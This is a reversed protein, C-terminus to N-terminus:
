MSAAPLCDAVEPARLKEICWGIGPLLGTVDAGDLRQPVQIVEGGLPAAGIPILLQTVSTPHLAAAQCRSPTM